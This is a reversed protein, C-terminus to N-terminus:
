QKGSEVTIDVPLGFSDAVPQGADDLWPLREGTAPDYMGVVLTAPGPRADARVTLNHQDILYEGPLWSSTPLEGQGPEGDSQALFAGEPDLLHAFVALREGTTQTARWHLTLGLDAGPKVTTDTLEFGVLQGPGDLQANLDFQPQTPAFVRERPVVEIEDLTIYDRRPTLTGAKTMLRQGTVPDFLGTILRLRSAGEAAATAPLRLTHKSRIWEQDQWATSPYWAVPRGEWGAIMQDAGDLLQVFAFLEESREELGPLAQWFLNVELDEGPALPGDPASFGVLRVSNDLRSTAAQQLPLTEVAPPDDPRAVQVAGLAVETGRPRRVADLVDMPGEEAAPRVSLKIEYNGPPTGSPILLGSKDPGAPSSAPYDQQAWTEGEADSLRLSIRREPFAEAGEWDLDVLLVDNAAELTGPELRAISLNLGSSFAHPGALQEPGPASASGRGAWGTLRTSPSYWRNALLHYGATLYSEAATELAGGLALHEPFWLNGQSLASDLQEQIAAGWSEASALVPESGESLGYSWYYGAQWPFVAYFTDGPRGWQNVQGILPRYDESEYRPVTYFSALSIGAILLAPLWFIALIAAGRKEGNSWGLKYGPGRVLAAGMIAVLLLFLPLGVLLLREGREPFFPFSLNVVWGLLLLISLSALLFTIQRWVLGTQSEPQAPSPSHVRESARAAPDGSSTTEKVSAANTVESIARTSTRRWRNRSLWWLGLAWPILGALGLLWWGALPGELHGASFSALHRALYEVLGLPTDSDAVVKQSVYPVLKPGAYALWPLYILFIAVQAGLWAVGRRRLEGVQGLVLFGGLTVGAILVGTYYMTYLGLSATVIYAVLVPLPRLQRTRATGRTLGLWYMAFGVALLAWLTALGYMRVEQSYYIHLPNIALLLAALLGATAGGLSRSVAYILPVALIGASLSFLRLATPALGFLRSWGGLLGYYLPPHVDEATLRLMEGLPHNAFWVSYGEDWWLPQFDLRFARLALGLLTIAAVALWM